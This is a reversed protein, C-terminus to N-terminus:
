PAPIKIDGAVVAKILTGLNAIILGGVWFIMRNAKQELANHRKVDSVIGNGGDIGYLSREHKKTSELIQDVKGSIEILHREIDNM